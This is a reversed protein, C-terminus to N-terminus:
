RVCNALVTFTDRKYTIFYIQFINYQVITELTLLIGTEHLAVPIPQSWNKPVGAHRVHEVTRLPPKTYQVMTMIESDTRTYRVVAEQKCYYLTCTVHRMVCQSVIMSESDTGEVGSGSRLIPTTRDHWHGAAPM